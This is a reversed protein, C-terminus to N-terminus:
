QRRAPKGDDASEEPLSSADPAGQVAPDASPDDSPEAPPAEPPADAQDLGHKNHPRRQAICVVAVLIGLPVLTLVLAWAIISFHLTGALLLTSM